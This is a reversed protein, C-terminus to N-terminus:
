EPEPFYDDVMPVRDLFFQKGDLNKLAGADAGLNFKIGYAWLAQQSLGLIHAENPDGYQGDGLLPHGMHAFQARIQHTRGTILTCEVLSLDDKKDLVEYRTQARQATPEAYNFVRVKRRGPTKLIYNDILGRVPRPEGHVIALYYKEIKHDRIARSLVQMAEKSKAILVIGGTFRDIRNVPVPAFAESDTSDYSGKQYLYARAHTVLTNIKESADPHVLMGEPKNLLLVHEDEYVIDIRYTFDRLFTDVKAVAEFYEDEIYIELADGSQLRSDAKAPKGNLKFKKLRLFKQMAGRSIKPLEAAIWKDLRRGDDKKEIDFKRM